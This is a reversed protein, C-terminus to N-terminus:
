LDFESLFSPYQGDDGYYFVGILKKTGKPVIFENDSYLNKWISKELGETITKDIKPGFGKLIKVKKVKLDEYFGVEYLAFKETMPIGKFKEFTDDLSSWNLIFPHGSYEDKENKLIELAKLIYTSNEKVYKLDRTGSCAGFVIQGIENKRGFFIYEEDVPTYISCSSGMKGDSRGYVYISSIEQGKILDILLIDAKYIEEDTENPYVKIVKGIGVFDSNQYHDTFNQIMCECALASNLFLILPLLILKKMGSFYFFWRDGPPGFNLDRVFLRLDFWM